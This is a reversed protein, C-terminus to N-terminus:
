QINTRNDDFRLMQINKGFFLCQKFMVLQESHFLIMDSVCNFLKIVKQQTLYKLLQSSIFAKGTLVSEVTDSKILGFGNWNCTVTSTSDMIPLDYGLIDGDYVNGPALSQDHITVGDSRKVYTFDIANTVRLLSYYVEGHQFHQQDNSM